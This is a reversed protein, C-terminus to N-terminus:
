EYSAVVGGTSDVQVGDEKLIATYSLIAGETSTGEPADARFGTVGPYIGQKRNITHTATKTGADSETVFEISYSRETVLRAYYITVTLLNLKEPVM